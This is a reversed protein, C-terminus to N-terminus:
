ISYVISGSRGSVPRERQDLWHVAVAPRQELVRNSEESDKPGISDRTALFDLQAISSVEDHEKAVMTKLESRDVHVYRFGIDDFFYM